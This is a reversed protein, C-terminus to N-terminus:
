KKEKLIKYDSWVRSRLVSADWDHTTLWQTLWTLNFALQLSPVRASTIAPLMPGGPDRLSSALVGESVALAREIYSGANPRPWATRDMLADMSLLRKRYHACLECPSPCWESHEFLWRCFIFQDETHGEHGALNLVEGTEGNKLLAGPLSLMRRMAASAVIVDEEPRGALSLLVRVGASVGATMEDLDFQKSM